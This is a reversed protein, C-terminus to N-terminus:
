LFRMFLCRYSVGSDYMHGQVFSMVAPLKLWYEARRVTLAMIVSMYCSCSWVYCVKM